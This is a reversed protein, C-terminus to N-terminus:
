QGFAQPCSRSIATPAMVWGATIQGVEIAFHPIQETNFEFRVVAPAAQARRSRQSAWRSPVKNRGTSNISSACSICGATRLSSRRSLVWNSEWIRRM